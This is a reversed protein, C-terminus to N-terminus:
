SQSTSKEVAREVRLRALLKELRLMADPDCEMLRRALVELEGYVLVISVPVHNM